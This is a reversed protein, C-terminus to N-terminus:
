ATTARTQVPQHVGLRRRTQILWRGERVRSLQEVPPCTRRLGVVAHVIGHLASAHTLMRYNSGQLGGDITCVGAAAQMSCLCGAAHIRPIWRRNLCPDDARGTRPSTSVQDAGVSASTQVTFASGLVQQAQPRTRGDVLSPMRGRSGLTSRTRDTGPGAHAPNGTRHSTLRSWVRGRCRKLSSFSSNPRPRRGGLVSTLTAM